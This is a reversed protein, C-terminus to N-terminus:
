VTFKSFDKEVLQETNSVVQERVSLYNFGAQEMGLLVGGVVPQSKIKKLQAAPAVKHVEEQFSEIMIPSGDFLSGVLIIEFASDEFELQRIVGIALSALEKGAWWLVDMADPNGQNALEFILLVDSNTFPFRNTYLGEILEDLSAVGKAAIFPDTLTSKPGRCTWEFVVARLARKVLDSGGGMEWASEGAGVVRGTRKHGKDWGRCNCGTGSVVSLGWGESSGALLGLISDNVVKFPARLGMNRIIREHDPLQSPWDYGAIGFGAGTIQEISLGANQLAGDIITKLVQAYVEFGITEWNGSGHASFGIVKGFEDTILAHSKTGGIDIGLFYPM